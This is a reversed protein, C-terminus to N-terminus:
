SVVLDVFFFCDKRDIANLSSACTIGYSEFSSCVEFSVGSGVLIESSSSCRSRCDGNCETTKM